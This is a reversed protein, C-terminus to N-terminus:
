MARECAVHLAADCRGSLRADIAAPDLRLRTSRGRRSRAKSGRSVGATARHLRALSRLLTSKGSGNPGVLATVAGRALSVSAGELVPAGHYGVTVDVASIGFRAESM